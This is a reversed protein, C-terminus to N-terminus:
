LRSAADLEYGGAELMVTFSYLNATQTLALKCFSLLSDMAGAIDLWAAPSLSYSVSSHSFSLPLKRTGFSRSLETPSRGLQLSPSCPPRPLVSHM